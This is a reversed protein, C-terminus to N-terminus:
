FGSCLPVIRGAHPAAALCLQNNYWHPVAGYINLQSVTITTRLLLITTQPEANFHISVKGGGECKLSWTTLPSTGRFVQYRSEAFKLMFLEAIRNWGGDANHFFTGYWKKEDGSRHVDLTKCSVEQCLSFCTFKWFMSKHQRESELWHRQVYVHNHHPGRFNLRFVWNPWTRM